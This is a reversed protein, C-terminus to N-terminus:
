PTNIYKKNFNVFFKNVMLLLWYNLIMQSILIICIKNSDNNIISIKTGISVKVVVAKCQNTEVRTWMHAKSLAMQIMTVVKNETFGLKRKREM